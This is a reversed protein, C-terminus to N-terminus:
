TLAKMQVGWLQLQSSLLYVKHRALLSDLRDRSRQVFGRAGRALAARALLGLRPPRPLM